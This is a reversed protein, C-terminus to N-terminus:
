SGCFVVLFSRILPEPVHAGPAANGLRGRGAPGGPRLLGDKPSAGAERWVQSHTMEEAQKKNRFTENGNSPFMEKMPSKHRGRCLVRYLTGLVSLIVKASLASDQSPVSWLQTGGAGATPNPNKVGFREM